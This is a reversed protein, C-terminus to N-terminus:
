IPIPEGLNRKGAAEEWEARVATALQDAISDLRDDTVIGAAQGPKRRQWSWAFWSAVAGVVPFVFAGYTALSDRHSSQWVLYLLWAILAAGVTTAALSWWDKARGRRM